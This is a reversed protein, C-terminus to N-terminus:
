INREENFISSKGKKVMYIEVWGPAAGPPLPRARRPRCSCSCASCALRGLRARARVATRRRLTPGHREPHDRDSGAPAAASAPPVPRDRGASRLGEGLDPGLQLDRVAERGLDLRGRRAAAAAGAAAWAGVQGVQREEGDVRRPRGVQVLGHM